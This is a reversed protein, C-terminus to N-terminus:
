KIKNKYEFDIDENIYIYFTAATLVIIIISFYVTTKIFIENTGISIVSWLYNTIGSIKLSKIIHQKQEFRYITYLYFVLLSIVSVSKNKFFEKFFKFICLFILIYLFLAFYLRLIIIFEFYYKNIIDFKFILIIFIWFIPIILYVIGIILINQLFNKFFFSKRSNQRIICFIDNSKINELFYILLIFYIPLTTRTFNGNGLLMINFFYMEINNKGNFNLYCINIISFIISIVFISSIIFAYKLKNKFLINNIM